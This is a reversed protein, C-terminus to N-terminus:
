LYLYLLGNMRRHSIMVMVMVMAYTESVVVAVPSHGKAGAGRWVLSFCSRTMIAVRYYCTLVM